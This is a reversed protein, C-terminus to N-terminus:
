KPAHNNQQLCKLNGKLNLLTVAIITIAAGSLQVASLKEHLFLFAGALGFLPILNLFSGAYNASLTALASLYLSFALAYQVIGSLAALLWVSMPATAPIWTEPSRMWEVPLLLVAFGLAATQQWAVIYLPDIKAAFRASLVVYLAAAMTGAFILADGTFSGGDDANGPAAMGLAILLGGVAVLSLAIFQATPKVRFLLVSIAIIMIAESAQILTANSARTVALGILGLLYALWPELLGLSAFRAVEAPALRPVPQRRVLIFIWLSVVSAALQVALLFVPPFSDLVSKSMVTASGWCLAAMSALVAGSSVTM